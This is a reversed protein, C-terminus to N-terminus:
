VDAAYVGYMYMYEYMYMYTVLKSSKREAMCMYNDQQLARCTKAEILRDRSSTLSQLFKDKVSFYDGVM